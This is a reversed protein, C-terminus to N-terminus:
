RPAAFAEALAAVSDGVHAVQVGSAALDDPTSVGTWVLLASLGVSHAALVDTEINDGIFLCESAPLGVSTVAEQVITISPKGVIVDPERGAAREIAAVFAGAGPIPGDAGPYRRDTNVAIFRAGGLLARMATTMSEVSIEPFYGAVVYEADDRDTVTLGAAELEYVLGDAGFPFVTAGPQEHAIFRATATLASFVEDDDLPLGFQRFREAVRHHAMRSNNTVARIAKGHAKLAELAEIAGPITAGPHLLTGDIDFLYAAYDTLSRTM